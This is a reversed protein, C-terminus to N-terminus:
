LRYFTKFTKKGCCRGAHVSSSPEQDLDYGNSEVRTGMTDKHFPSDNPYYEMGLGLGTPNKGFSM